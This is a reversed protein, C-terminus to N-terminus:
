ADGARWPLTQPSVPAPAEQAGSIPTRRRQAARQQELRSHVANQARARAAYRAREAPSADKWARQVQAAWASNKLANTLSVDGPLCGGHAEPWERRTYEGRFIAWGNTNRLQFSRKGGYDDRRLKLLDRKIRCVRYTPPRRARPKPAGGAPGGLGQGGSLPSPPALAASHQQLSDRLTHIASLEPAGLAHGLHRAARVDKHTHGHEREIIHM